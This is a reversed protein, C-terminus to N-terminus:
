PYFLATSNYKKRRLNYDYKYSQFIIPIMSAVSVFEINEVYITSFVVSNPGLINCTAIQKILRNNASIIM